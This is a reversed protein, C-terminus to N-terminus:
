QRHVPPRARHLPGDSLASHVDDGVTPGIHLFLLDSPCQFTADMNQAYVAATRSHGSPEYPHSQAESFVPLPGRWQTVNGTFNALSSEAPVLEAAAPGAAVAVCAALPGGLESSSM